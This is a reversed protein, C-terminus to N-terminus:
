CKIFFLCHRFTKKKKKGPLGSFVTEDSTDTNVDQGAESAHEISNSTIYEVDPDCDSDEDVFVEDLVLRVTDWARENTTNINFM